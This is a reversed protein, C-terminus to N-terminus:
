MFRHLLLIINQLLLQATYYGSENVVTQSPPNKNSWVWKTELLNPENPNHPNTMTGGFLISASLLSGAEVETAVVPDNIEDVYCPTVTEVTYKVSSFSKKFGTYENENAPVFTITAKREGASPIQSPNSFVFYGDVINGNADKVVEDDNLILAEEQTQGYYMKGDANKYTITPWTVVNSAKLATAAFAVPVSVALMVVAMLVSLARSMTKEM